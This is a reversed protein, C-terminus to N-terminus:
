EVSSAPACASKEMSSVMHDTEELSGEKLLNKTMVGYTSANPILGNSSVAACLEKAEKTRGAKYMASVMTNFITTSFKEDMAGLKQFLVIAEDTCNDGCLGGLIVGYTSASVTMGSEIVVLAIEAAEKTRGHKCFSVMFSTCTATNPIVGRRTMERFIKVAEEWLGLSSYGRIM